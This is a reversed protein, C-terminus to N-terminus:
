WFILKISIFFSRLIESVSRLTIYILLKDNYRDYCNATVRFFVRVHTERILTSSQTFAYTFKKGRTQVRFPLQFSFFPSPNLWALNKVLFRIAHGFSDKAFSAEQWWKHKATSSISRTASLRSSVGNNTCFFFFPIRILSLDRKTRTANRDRACSFTSLRKRYAVSMHMLRSCHWSNACQIVM